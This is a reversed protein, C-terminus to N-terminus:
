NKYSYSRAILIPLYWLNDEELGLVPSADKNKESFIYPTEGAPNFYVKYYEVLQTYEDGNLLSYTKNMNLSLVTNYPLPEYGYAHNYVGQEELSGAYEVFQILDYDHDKAIKLEDSLINDEYNLNNQHIDQNLYLSKLKEVPLSSETNVLSEIFHDELHIKQIFKQAITTEISGKHNTKVSKLDMNFREFGFAHHSHWPGYDYM